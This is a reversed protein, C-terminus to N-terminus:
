GFRIWHCFPIRRPQTTRYANRPRGAMVEWFRIPKRYASYDFRNM